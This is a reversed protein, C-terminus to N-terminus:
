VLRNWPHTASSVSGTLLPDATTQTGDHFKIWLHNDDGDTRYEDIQYGRGGPDLTASITVPEGNVWLQTVGTIPVDSIAIVQTFYANPTKGSNGWSNAYVLSGATTTHGLIISRPVDGGSQLTGNVSFPEAEPPKGALAKAAYSLGIGVAVKLLIAGLGGSLFTGGLLATALGTFVAM